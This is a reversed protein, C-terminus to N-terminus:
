QFSKDDVVPPPAPRPQVHQPRARLNTEDAPMSRPSAEILRPLMVTRPAMASTQRIAAPTAAAFVDAVLRTLPRTASKALAFVRAPCAAAPGPPGTVPVALPGTRPSVTPATFSNRPMGYAVGGTPANRHCGGCGETLQDPTRSAVCNAGCQGCAAVGNPRALVDSSQRYRFTKVGICLCVPECKGTM